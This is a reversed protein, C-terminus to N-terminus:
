DKSPNEFKVKSPVHYWKQDGLSVRYQEFHTATTTKTDGGLMCLTNMGYVKEMIM